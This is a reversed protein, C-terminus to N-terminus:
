KRREMLFLAPRKHIAPLAGKRWEQITMMKIEQTPATLDVAICLRTQPACCSLIEELLVQNHYPTEMFIQTQQERLSLDELMKIKRLRQSKDKPLYGYFAFRQGGLGSAMLALLISSPGVLPVVKWQYQHAWSVVETGPDAVCPCGAESLIGMDQDGCKKFNEEIEGHHTHENLLFLTCEQIPLSPVAKKLFRRAAKEEEVWFVRLDQIMSVTSAPVMEYESDASLATPILYLKKAM